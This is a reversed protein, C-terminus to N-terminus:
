PTKIGLTISRTSTGAVKDAQMQVVFFSADPSVGGSVTAGMPISGGTFTLSGTTTVGYTRTESVPPTEGTNTTSINCAGASCGEMRDVQAALTDFTSSNVGDFQATGTVLRTTIQATTLLNDELTVVRYTGNLSANTMGNTPQRVVVSFSNLGPSFIDVLTAAYLAKDPSMTGFGSLMNFPPVSASVVTLQGDSGVTSPLAVLTESPSSRLTANISCGGGSATCSVGQSMVSEAGSTAAGVSPNSAGSFTVTGVGTQSSLIGAWFGAGVFPMNLPQTDVEGFDVYNFTAAFDASSIGSGRKILMGLSREGDSTKFGFIAVTGTPNAQAAFSFSGAASFIVRNTATRFFLGEADSTLDGFSQHTVTRTCIATCTEQVKNGVEGSNVVVTGNVPDFTLNGQEITRHFPTTSTDAYTHYEFLSYTGAVVSQDVNASQEIDVLAPLVENQFALDNQINTITTEISSGVLSPIEDLLAQILGVYGAAGSASFKSVGAAIIRRTGLEGAPDVQMLPQVAPVNLAGATGIPVPNPLNGRTAQIVTLTSATPSLNTGDPVNFVFSGDAATTTVGLTGLPTGNNAVNLLFVRANPVPSLGPPQAVANEPFGFLSAFWRFLAPPQAKAIQGNPAVVVGGVQIMATEGGGGEGGGGGGGCSLIVGSLVLLTLIRWM